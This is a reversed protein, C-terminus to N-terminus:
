LQVEELEQFGLQRYLRKFSLNRERFLFIADHLHTESITLAYACGNNSLRKPARRLDVQIGGRRLMSQATQAQTLSRFTFLYEYM